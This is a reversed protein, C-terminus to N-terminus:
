GPVGKRSLAATPWALPESQFSRKAQDTGNPTAARIGGSSEVKMPLDSPKMLPESNLFVGAQFYASEYMLMAMLLWIRNVNRTTVTSTHTNALYWSLTRRSVCQAAIIPAVMM